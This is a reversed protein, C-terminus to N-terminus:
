IPVARSVVAFDGQQMPLADGNFDDPTLAVRREPAQELEGEWGLYLEVTDHQDLLRELLQGLQAVDRATKTNSDARAKKRQFLLTDPFWGCGCGQWSSAYLVDPKSFLSLVMSHDPQLAELHFRDDATTLDEVPLSEDSGIFLAYCV